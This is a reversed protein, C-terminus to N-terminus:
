ILCYNLWKTTRVYMLLWMGRGRPFSHCSWSVARRFASNKNARFIQKLVM